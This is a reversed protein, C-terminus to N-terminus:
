QNSAIGCSEAVVEVIHKVEIPDSIGSLEDNSTAPNHREAHSTIILDPEPSEVEDKKMEIYNLGPIQKIIKVPEEFVKQENSMKEPYEYVATREVEHIFELKAMDMIDSIDRVKDTFRKAREYWATGPVFLKDYENLATGPGGITNVIYDFGHKECAEINKMALELTMDFEETSDHVLKHGTWDNVHTVKVNGAEMIKIVLANIDTFVPDVVSGQFFGVSINQEM